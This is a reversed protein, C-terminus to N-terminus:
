RKKQLHQKLFELMENWAAVSAHANGQPTGGLACWFKIVPHFYPLDTSPIYPFDFVHGTQPFHSHKREITSGKKELREMILNGYLTSPWMKDDEGSFILLPCRINEVPITAADIADPFKKLAYLYLQTIEHPDAFSGAHFPVKGEKVASFIEEQTPLPMFPIPADKFTWASQSLDPLGGYVLSSPVYAIIASIEEPFTAGLLLTLQGGYSIGWLAIRKPDVQPQKKLWQIARQFYELPIKELTAPLGPMGFYGLALVAYGHSALLQSVPATIGGSSGNLTIITPGAQMKEPYFFTGVIGEENIEQQHIDPTALLRYTMKQTLLKDQVSVSILVEDPHTPAEINKEAPSMSWFLGMPDIGTYSGSIPAQASVDVYGKEDAKFAASSSWIENEKFRRSAKIIIEEHAKLNSISIKVPVDALAKEPIIELKPKAQAWFFLIISFIAIALLLFSFSKRM